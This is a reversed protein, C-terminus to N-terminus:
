RQLNDKKSKLLKTGPMGESSTELSKKIRKVEEEAIQKEENIRKRLAYTIFYFALYILRSNANNEKLAFYYQELFYFMLSADLFNTEKAFRLLDKAKKLEASNIKKM